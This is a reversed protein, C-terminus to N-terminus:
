STSATYLTLFEQRTSFSDKLEPDNLYRPIHTEPDWESFRTLGYTQFITKFRGHLCRMTNEVTKLDLQVYCTLVALLFALHNVWPTDAVSTNIYNMLKRDIQDWSIRPSALVQPHVVEQFRIWVTSTHQEFAALPERM